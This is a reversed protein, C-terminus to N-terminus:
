GPVMHRPMAGALEIMLVFCSCVTIARRSQPSERSAAFDRLSSDLFSPPCSHGGEKGLTGSVVAERRPKAVERSVYFAAWSQERVAEQNASLSRSSAAEM